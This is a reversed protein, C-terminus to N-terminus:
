LQLSSDEVRTKIKGERHCFPQGNTHTNADTTPSFVHPLRQPEWSLSVALALPHAQSSTPVALPGPASPSQVSLTSTILKELPNGTVPRRQLARDPAFSAPIM